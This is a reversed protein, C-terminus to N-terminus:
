PYNVTVLGFVVKFRLLLIIFFSELREGPHLQVDVKIAAQAHGGDPLDALGLNKELMKVTTLIIISLGPNLGEQRHSGPLVSQGRLSPRM